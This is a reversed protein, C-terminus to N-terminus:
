GFTFVYAEAGADLFEVEFTRDVIPEPQRILQHLRQHALTGNGGEDVDIGRADGPPSGDVSVRFPVTAGPAPPGLVLHVDRAHFRFAIRCGTGNSVAAGAKITWDGALAWQNLRLSEPVAYGHPGDLAAGGPSAFGRAQDYGLYTEPSELNAWDAQAEFGAPDVSVVNDSVGEVGAERLLMQIARECDEYDGEGFHHYRIRGQSDALYVAPWYRNGFDSWVGYDPDLAIPYEVDMENAARRVNDVDREFPFEPTHVGVVVLGRDRYTEFWARVYALTRLWNICTYTWFDVLVVKGRLDDATLPPSNLWGSASGFGPLRGESPLPTAGPHRRVGFFSV